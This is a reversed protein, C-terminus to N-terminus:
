NDRGGAGRVGEQELLTYQQSETMCFRKSDFNIEAHDGVGEKLTSLLIEIPTQEPLENVERVLQSWGRNRNLESDQLVSQKLFEDTIAEYRDATLHRFAPLMKSFGVQAQAVTKYMEDLNNSRPLTGQNYKPKGPLREGTEPITKMVDQWTNRDVAWDEQKGDIAYNYATELRPYYFLEGMRNAVKRQVGLEQAFLIQDLKGELSRVDNQDLLQAAIDLSIGWKSNLKGFLKTNELLSQEKEQAETLNNSKLNHINAILEIFNNLLLLDNKAGKEKGTNPNPPVGETPYSVNPMKNAGFICVDMTFATLRAYSTRTAINLAEGVSESYQSLFQSDQASQERLSRKAVRFKLAEVAIKNMEQEMTVM